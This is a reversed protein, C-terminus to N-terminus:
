ISSLASGLVTKSMAPYDAGPVNVLETFIQQIFLVRGSDTKGLDNIMGSFKSEHRVGLPVKSM